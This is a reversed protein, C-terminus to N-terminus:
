CPARCRSRARRCRGSIWRPVTVIRSGNESSTEVAGQAVGLKIHKVPIEAGDVTIVCHGDMEAVGGDSLQQRTPFTLTVRVDLHREGVEASGHLEGLGVFSWKREAIVRGDWELSFGRGVENRSVTLNHGEFTAEWRTTLIGM